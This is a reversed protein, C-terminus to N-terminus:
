TTPLLCAHVLPKETEVVALELPEGLEDSLGEHSSCRLRLSEDVDGPDRFVQADLRRPHVCV